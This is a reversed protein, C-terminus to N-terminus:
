VLQPRRHDQARVHVAARAGNFEALNRKREVVVVGPAQQNTERRADHWQELRRLKAGVKQLTVEGASADKGEQSELADVRQHGLM